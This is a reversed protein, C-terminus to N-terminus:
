IVVVKADSNRVDEIPNGALFEISAYQNETIMLSQVIGSKPCLQAVRKVLFDASKRNMAVRVYVSEQIMLFGENILMKRFQRYNRRDSATLTPLDFFIMLRM